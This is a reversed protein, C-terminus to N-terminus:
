GHFFNIKCLGCVLIVQAVCQVVYVSSYLGIDGIGGDLEGFFFELIQESVIPYYPELNPFVDNDVYQTNSWETPSPYSQDLASAM